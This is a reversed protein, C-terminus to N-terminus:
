MRPASRAHVAIVPLIQLGSPACRFGPGGWGRRSERIASREIRAVATMALLTAIFCDLLRMEGM